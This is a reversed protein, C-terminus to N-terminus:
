REGAEMRAKAAKGQGYRVVRYKVAVLARRIPSPILQISIM